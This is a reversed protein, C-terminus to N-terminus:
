SGRVYSVGRVSLTGHRDDRGAAGATHHFARQELRGTANIPLLLLARVGASIASWSRRPGGGSAFRSVFNGSFGFADVGRGAAALIATPPEPDSCL